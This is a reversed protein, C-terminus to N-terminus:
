FSDVSGIEERVFPNLLLSLPVSRCLATSPNLLSSVSLLSEGDVCLVLVLAEGQQTVPM